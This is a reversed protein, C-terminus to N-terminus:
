RIKVIKKTFIFSGNKLIIFYVGDNLESIDIRKNIVNGKNILTGRTDYITYSVNDTINIGAINIESKSPIPFIFLPNINNDITNTTHLVIDICYKESICNNENTEVVCIKGNLSDLWNIKISNLTQGELILGNEVEWFYTSNNNPGIIKYNEISKTKPTVSGEIGQVVPTNYTEISQMIQDTCGFNNKVTLIYDGPEIVIIFSNTSSFGQPGTWSYTDGGSGILIASDGECFKPDGIINIVAVPKEFVSISVSATDTCGNSNEAVLNYEGENKVIIFLNSSTFGEPGTWSYTDGGGAILIVSDGECFETQGVPNIVATPKNYEYIFVSTTDTCGNSDEVFLKYYGEKNVTVFSNTSSFGEPGTWSYVVGGSGTLIVSNGECFGNSINGEVSIGAIVKDVEIFTIITSDCGFISILNNERFTDKTINYYTTRDPFMYDDGYCVTHNEEILYAPHVKIFVINSYATSGLHVKARFYKDEHLNGTIYHATNAGSGGSVNKWNTNGDPSEQWQISGASNSLDLTTNEGECLEANSTSATGAIPDSIEVTIGIMFRYGWNSNLEYLNGGNSSTSYYFTKNRNPKENQKGLPYYPKGSNSKTLAFGALIDTNEFVPSDFIKFSKWIGLDNSTILTKHSQAIINGLTDLLVAYVKQGVSPTHEYIFVDVSRIKTAGNIHYKSAFIGEKGYKFGLDSDPKKESSYNFKDFTTVQTWTKNNDHNDSDNPISIAILNEGLNSPNFPNFNVIITEGPNIVPIRKIDSFNNSLSINLSVDLDYVPEYLNNTLAASINQPNGYKISSEGLTYIADISINKCPNPIFRYTRGFDPKPRTNSNGYNLGYTYIEDKTYNENSFYVEDWGDKSNKGVVLLQMFKNGSGKLGCAATKFSNVANAPTWDGYVFEIINSTEYLKIQFELNDYFLGPYTTKEKIGKYQIICVRNPSNGSTYVRYEPNTGGTLNHNFISILNIDEPETSDFLGESNYNTYKFFLDPKSPPTTGLKIFGNTNLIFKSFSMRNYQFDFGIDIPDSNADDYNVTTIISGKNGLDIYFGSYNQADEAIYNSTNCTVLIYDEKETIDSGFNNIVTLKVNYKGPKSYEVTPNQENSTSPNGGEFEWFWNSPENVSIDKFEAKKGAVITTNDCVFDAVPASNQSYLESEWLGRGFTAARLKSFSPNPDYYIELDLIVVKPMGSNFFQWNAAGRKVFVGFDTGVYLEDMVQNQKNQVITNAPIDPLGASINSWTMGGNTTQYVVNSDYSGLTIWVTNPDDYKVFISSIFNDPLGSTINEWNNGSDTTKWITRPESAYIVKTDSAAVVLCRFKDESNKNFVIEWLDGQDNSKYIHQYGAYLIKHNQPDLTLPTVWAGESGTPAIQDDSLWHDKTRYIERGNYIEEYQINNDTYDILCDMGDSEIIDEWIGNYYNKTGNDQLGTIIDYEETQAVGVKYMESCIVGNSIYSWDKGNETKYLGGDNCEYLTTGNFAFFHKDEHVIECYSCYYDTWFTNLTWSHGGDTSKWTNCGGCYLINPNNPDVILSLTFWGQGGTDNGDLSFGLLNPFPRFLTSFSEGSDNSVAIEYLGDETNSVLAYVTNPQSPSIALEIRRAGFSYYNYVNEINSGNNTIKYIEGLYRHSAFLISPDNPKFELDAINKDFIRNWTTGGNTTKYIGNTTAAYIINNNDPHILLRNVSYDDAVDFELGTKHWSIGGDTSKLVGIGNDKWNSDQDGSGIYITKSTSYDSPIAIATTTLNELDDTLPVWSHGWNSTKWVGGGPTTVWFTSKDTPHFAVQNIRGLRFRESNSNAPGLNRWNGAPSKRETLQNKLQIKKYQRNARDYQNSSPFEGTKPNVRSEWYYEWRKFQKWGYAKKKINNEYYYGNKIKKDKCYENFAKRYDTFTVKNSKKEEPLYQQWAQSFTNKSLLLALIIFLYTKMKILNQFQVNTYLDIRIVM